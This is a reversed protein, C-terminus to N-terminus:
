LMWLTLLFYSCDVLCSHLFRSILVSRNMVFQTVRMRCNFWTKIEQTSNLKVTALISGKIRRSFYFGDAGASARKQVDRVYKQYCPRQLAVVRPRYETNTVCDVIIITLFARCNMKDGLFICDSSVVVIYRM